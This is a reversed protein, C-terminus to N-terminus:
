ETYGWFRAYYGVCLLHKVSDTTLQILDTGYNNGKTLKITGWARSFKWSGPFCKHLVDNTSSSPLLYLDSCQIGPISSM